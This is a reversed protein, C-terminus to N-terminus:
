KRKDKGQRASGHEGGVAVSREVKRGWCGEERGVGGGWGMDKIQGGKGGRRRRGGRGM